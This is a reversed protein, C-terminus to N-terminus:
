IRAHADRGKKLKIICSVHFFDFTLNVFHTSLYERFTYILNILVFRSCISTLFHRFHITM